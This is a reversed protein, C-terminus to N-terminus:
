FNLIIKNAFLSRCGRMKIAKTQHIRINNEDHPSLYASESRCVQKGNEELGEQM